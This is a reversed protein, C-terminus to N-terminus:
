VATGTLSFYPISAINPGAARNYHVAIGVRNPANTLYSTVTSTYVQVWNKGDVSYYFFLTSGTKTIRLWKPFGRYGYTTVDAAWAGLSSFNSVQVQTGSNPFKCVVARGSVSDHMILGIGSYNTDAYAWNMKVVMDWDNAPTTLTRYAVRLKDGTVPTNANFILGVDADDTLIPMTTDGSELTFSAATPPLWSWPKNTTYAMTGTIEISDGSANTTLTVNSGSLTYENSKFKIGDVFVLIADTSPPTVPLAITQSTGTGTAYVHFPTVGGGSAVTGPKWLHATNDYVLAQGNTPPTSVTDVDNLDDLVADIAITPDHILEGDAPTVKIGVGDQIKHATLSDEVLKQADAASIGDSIDIQRQQAWRIFYETPTGDSNSIPFQKGLPQLTGVM